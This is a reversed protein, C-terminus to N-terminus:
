QRQKCKAILASCIMLSSTAMVVPVSLFGTEFIKREHPSQVMVTGVIVVYAISGIWLWITTWSAFSFIPKWWFLGLFPRLPILWFTCVVNALMLVLIPSFVMPSTEMIWPKWTWALIAGVLSGIMVVVAYCATLQAFFIKFERPTM